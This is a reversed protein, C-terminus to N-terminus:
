STFGGSPSTRVPWCKRKWGLMKKGALLCLIVAQFGLSSIWRLLQSVPRASEAKFFFFGLVQGTFAVTASTM